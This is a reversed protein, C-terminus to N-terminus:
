SIVPPDVPAGNLTHVYTYTSITALIWALTGPGLAMASSLQLSDPWVCPRYVHMADNILRLDSATVVALALV